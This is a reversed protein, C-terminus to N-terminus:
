VPKKFPLGLDAMAKKLADLANKGIGHLNAIEVETYGSLQKLSTIGANTLARRAPASLKINEM